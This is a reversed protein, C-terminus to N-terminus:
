GAEGGLMRGDLGAHYHCDAPWIVFSLAACIPGLRRTAVAHEDSLPPLV